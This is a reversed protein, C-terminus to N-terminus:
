EHTLAQRLENAWAVDKLPHIFYHGAARVTASTTETTIFLCCSWDPMLTRADIVPHGIARTALALITDDGFALGLSTRPRDLWGRNHLAALTAGAIIIFCGPIIVGRFGNALARWGINHWWVPRGRKLEWQHEIKSDDTRRRRFGVPLVDAWVQAFDRSRMVLPQGIIGQTPLVGPAFLNALDPRCFHVDADVRLVYDYARGTQVAWQLASFTRDISGRYGTSHELRLVDIRGAGQGAFRAKMQEGIHSPSADDLILVDVEHGALIALLQGLALPASVKEGEYLGYFVLLKM